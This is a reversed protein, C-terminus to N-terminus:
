SAGDIEEALRECRDILERLHQKIRPTTSDEELKRARAAAQEPSGRDDEIVVDIRRGNIGGAQNIEDAAMLIGNKASEGFNFTPGSLDGFFGIKITSRDRAAEPQQQRQCSGAFLILAFLPLAILSARTRRRTASILTSTNAMSLGFNTPCVSTNM